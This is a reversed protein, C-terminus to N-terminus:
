MLTTFGPQYERFRCTSCSFAFFHFFGGRSTEGRKLLRPVRRDWLGSFCHRSICGSRRSGRPGHSTTPWSVRVRPAAEPGRGWLRSSFRGLGEENMGGAAPDSGTCGPLVDQPAHTEICHKGKADDRRYMRAHSTPPSTSRARLVYLEKELNLHPPLIEQLRDGPSPYVIERNILRIM